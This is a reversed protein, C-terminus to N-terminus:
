EGHQPTLAFGKAKFYDASARARPIFWKWRPHEEGHGDEGIFLTYPDDPDASRNPDCEIWMRALMEIEPPVNELEERTM